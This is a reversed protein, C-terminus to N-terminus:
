RCRLTIEAVKKAIMLRKRAIRVARAILCDTKEERSAIRAIM